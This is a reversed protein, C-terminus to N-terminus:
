FIRIKKNGKRIIKGTTLDIITSPKTTKGFSIHEMKGFQKKIEYFSLPPQGSLNASTSILMGTKKIFERAKKNSPVRVCIKGEKVILPNKIKSKIILSVGYFKKTKYKKEIQAIKEIENFSSALVIFPKNKERKKIEYIKKISKNDNFKCSFGWITDPRFLFIKDFV